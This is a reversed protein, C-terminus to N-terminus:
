SAGGALVKAHCGAGVLVLQGLGQGGLAVLDWPCHCCGQLLGPQHCGLGQDGLSHVLKAIHPACQPRLGATDGARLQTPPWISM